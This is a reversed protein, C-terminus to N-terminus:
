AAACVGHRDATRGGEAGAARGPPPACGDQHSRHMHCDGPHVRQRVCAPEPQRSFPPPPPPPPPAAAPRRRRCLGFPLPTPISWPAGPQCVSRSAPVGAEVRGRGSCGGGCVPNRAGVGAGGRGGVRLPIAAVAGGRGGEGSRYLALSKHFDTSGSPYAERFTLTAEFIQTPSPSFTPPPPPHPSTLPTAPPSSGRRSGRCRTGAAWALLAGEGHRLLGTCAHVPLAFWVPRRERASSCRCCAGGWGARWCRCWSWGAGGSRRWM